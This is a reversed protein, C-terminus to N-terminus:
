PARGARAGREDATRAVQGSESGEGADRSRAAWGRRQARYGIEVAAAPRAYYGMLVLTRLGWFGRRLLLVRSRELRGLVRTGTAVPLRSFRSQHRLLPFLEIVRLFLGLQRQLGAPRAALATEVIAEVESWGAEDLSAAEPVVCVAVARFTSRHRAIVSM